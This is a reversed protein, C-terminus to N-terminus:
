FGSLALVRHVRYDNGGGGLGSFHLEKLLFWNRNHFDRGSSFRFLSCIEPAPTLMAPLQLIQIAVDKCLAFPGKKCKAKALNALM